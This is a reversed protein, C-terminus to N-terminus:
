IVGIKELEAIDDPTLGLWAELVAANDAGREPFLTLERMEYESLRIPSRPLVVDGLYPHTVKQLMGREHMHPDNRVVDITRVPAVPIKRDRMARFAENQTLCASWSSIMANIEEERAFRNANGEYEPNGILDPRGIVELIRVWHAEAVCIVVIWGDQCQYRGYPTATSNTRDGRPQPVEGTFALYTLDSSLTFYMTEMMAVEVLTGQGTRERGFLAEMVGAYLHVGGMIDCPTGGARSPPGGREGTLSMVGSAAQITHDMALQDRDPGSLGYGTASGYVLRPNLDRLVTYGLGLRDMVGPAFNELLVDAHAALSKFLKKGRAHKLDLTLSRKNSNLMAFALPTDPGGGRRLREGAPPEVKVVDAGAMAMLFSAYPGQYIQTLDLVRIGSLTQM